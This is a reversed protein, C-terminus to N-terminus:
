TLSYEPAIEYTIQDSAVDLTRGVIRVEENLQLWQDDIVVPVVDGLEINQLLENTYAPNMVLTPMVISKGWRAVGRKAQARLSSVSSGPTANYVKELILGEMLTTDTYVGEERDSGDGEAQVIVQTTSQTNDIDATYSVVNGGLVLSYDPKTSRRPYYSALTRTTPSFEFLLDMGDALTPFEFLAEQIQMREIWPYERTRKIGTVPTRSAINLSSKGMAPDQAHEVLGKVILSEDVDFFALQNSATVSIEDWICVGEPPYLRVNVRYTKGDAPVVLSCEMRTWRDKPTEANISVYGTAKPKKPIAPDILEMYVGWGDKSDGLYQTIKTWGVLTLTKEKKDATPNVFNFSQGAYQRHGKATQTFSYDIEVRRNKARGATTSNSAVPRTEGYSVVSVIAAPKKVLIRNKVSQARQLGLTYNYGSSGTSDTHGAIKMKPNPVTIANCLADINAIGQPKLTALNFDFSVDGELTTTTVQVASSGEIRLSYEGNLTDTVFSHVPPASPISGDVWTFDWYRYKEEFSPNKLLNPFPVQGIVRQSFYWDLSVATFIVTAGESQARVVVLWDEMVSGRWFQVERLVPKIEGIQENDRKVTFELVSGGNLTQSYNNVVIDTLDAYKVGARDVVVLSYATKGTLPNTVVNRAFKVEHRSPERLYNHPADFSTSSLFDVVEHTAASTTHDTAIRTASFTVEQTASASHFVFDRPSTDFIVGIVPKGTNFATSPVVDGGDSRTAYTKGAFTTTLPVTLNGFVEDATHSATIYSYVSPALITVMLETGSAVRLASSLPVDVWGTQYTSDPHTYTVTDLVNLASDYIKLKYAGPYYVGVSYHTLVGDANPKFVVGVTRSGSFSSSDYPKRDWLISPVNQNGIELGAISMQNGGTTTAYLRYYRYATTNTFTYARPGLPWTAGEAARTDLTVWTADDNSGEFTFANPSENTRGTPTIRYWTAVVPTGSGFDTKLWFPTGATSSQYMWDDSSAGNYKGNGAYAATYSASSQNRASWAVPTLRM